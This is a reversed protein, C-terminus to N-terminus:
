VLTIKLSLMRLLPAALSLNENKSVGMPHLGFAFFIEPYQEVINLIKQLDKEKTCITVFKTVGREKARAVISGLDNFLEPFDLHCHSDIIEPLKSTM